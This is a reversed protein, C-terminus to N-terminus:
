WTCALINAIQSGLYLCAGVKLIYFRAPMKSREIPIAMSIEFCAHLYGLNFVSFLKPELMPELRNSKRTMYFTLITMIMLIM